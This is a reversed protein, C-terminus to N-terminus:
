LTGHVPAGFPTCTVAVAFSSCCSLKAVKDQDDVQAPADKLGVSARLESSVMSVAVTPVWHVTVNLMVSGQPPIVIHLASTLTTPPGRGTQSGPPGYLGSSHESPTSSITSSPVPEVFAVSNPHVVVQGPGPKTSEVLAVGVSWTSVPVSCDPIHM